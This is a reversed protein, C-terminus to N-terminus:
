NRQSNQPHTNTDITEGTKKKKIQIRRIEMVNKEQLNNKIEYSSNM